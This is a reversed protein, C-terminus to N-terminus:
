PKYTRKALYYYPEFLHHRFVNNGTDPYRKYYEEDPQLVIPTGARMYNMTPAYKGATYQPMYRVVQKSVMRGMFKEFKKQAKRTSKDLKKYVHTAYMRVLLNQEKLAAKASMFPNPKNFDSLTQISFPTEPVWDAANVVNYAWGARNNYDFDYAFYLNGPKPAASCYTKVVLDVPLSGDEIQYHLYASLLYALAGGQSHGEVIVQKIGQGYFERIKRVITPAMSGLGVMWGVHVMAKPDRALKYNFTTSDTLHLSGQAPIMACYFNELWSDIDSTTGRLNIAITTRSKNMWVSFRNNLGVVASRYVRAYMADDPVQGRFPTDVYAVCRQLTGLYEDIEFGPKLQQARSVFSIIVVGIVSLVYRM